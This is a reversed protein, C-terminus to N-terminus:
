IRPCGPESVRYRRIVHVRHLFHYSQMPLIAIPNFVRDLKAEELFFCLLNPIVGNPLASGISEPIRLHGNECRGSRDPEQHIAVRRANFRIDRQYLVLKQSSSAHELNDVLRHSCGQLFQTVRRLLGFLNERVDIFMIRDFVYRNGFTLANELAPESRLMQWDEITRELGVFPFPAKVIEPM